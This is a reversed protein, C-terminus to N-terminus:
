GRPQWLRRPSLSGASEHLEFAASYRCSIAFSGLVGKDAFAHRQLRANTPLADHENRDKGPKRDIRVATQSQRSHFTTGVITFLARCADAAIRRYQTASLRPPLM